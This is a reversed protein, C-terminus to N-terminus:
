KYFLDLGSVLRNFMRCFVGDDCWQAFDLINYETIQERLRKPWRCTKWSDDLSIPCLVDRKTQLELERAVRTEHEVWDSEVSHHSLVLLVTPNLRIARDIQTELRGATAHHVDRWFRIGRGDLYTELRDVFNADSHSYSIFLPNVQLPNGVRLDHIKYLISTLEPDSLLLHNLRTAEIQWDSLGCGRLFLIPLEGSRQLTQHDLFSRQLHECRELGVTNTLNTDGFYTGGFRAGAVSAATLDAEGLYAGCLYSNSLVAERLNARELDASYLNAGDLDSREFDVGRYTGWGLNAKRLCAERLLAHFMEAQRLDVETLDARSLDANRLGARTLDAGRLDARSLDIGHLSVGHLSGNSLDVKIQPNDARWRNWIEAGQRLIRLHEENAM